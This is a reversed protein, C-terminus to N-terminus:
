TVAASIAPWALGAAASGIGVPSSSQGSVARGASADHAGAVPQAEGDDGDGAPGAEGLLEACSSVRACSTSARSFTRSASPM